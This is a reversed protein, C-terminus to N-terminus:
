GPSKKGRTKKPNSPFFHQEIAECCAVVTPNIGRDVYKKSEDKITHGAVFKAYYSDVQCAITYAADRLGEMTVDENLGAQRRLTVFLQRINEGTMARGTRSVFLPAAKNPNESQYTRIARVTRDWLRAVRRKSTKSRKADFTRTDLDLDAKMTKGIEGNHMACNLGLLLMAKMRNDALNLLKLFETKTIPRPNVEVEPLDFVSECYDVAQRCDETDDTKKRGWNLIAKVKVMRNRITAPAYDRAAIVKAYDSLHAKTLDRAYDVKVLAVFENWWVESNTRNKKALPKGAKNRAEDCYKKGLEALTFLPKVPTAPYFALHPIDLEVAAKKPNTLILNRVRRREVHLRWSIDDMADDLPEGYESGPPQYTKMAELQEADQRAIEEATMARPGVGQASLWRRFKMVARAEDRLSFAPKSMGIPRLKNDKGKYAGDITEGWSTVYTGKNPRGPGNRNTM